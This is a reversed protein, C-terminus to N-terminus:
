SLYKKKLQEDRCYEETESWFVVFDGFGGGGGEKYMNQSGDYTSIV